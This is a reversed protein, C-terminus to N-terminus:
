ATAPEAISRRRGQGILIMKSVRKAVLLFDCKKSRMGASFVLVLAIMATTEREINSIAIKDPSKSYPCFYRIALTPWFITVEM